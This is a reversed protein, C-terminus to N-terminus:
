LFEFSGVLQALAPTAFTVLATATHGPQLMKLEEIDGIETKLFEVQFM